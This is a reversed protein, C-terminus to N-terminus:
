ILWRGLRGLTAWQQLADIIKSELLRGLLTRVDQTLRLLEARLHQENQFIMLPSFAIFPLQLPSVAVASEVENKIAAQYLVNLQDIDELMAKILAYTEVVSASLEDLVGIKACASEFVTFYKQTIRVSFIDEIQMKRDTNQLNTIREDLLALYQRWTVLQRLAGLEAALALAIGRSEKYARYESVTFEVFGGLLIGVILWLPASATIEM